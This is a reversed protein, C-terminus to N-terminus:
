LPALTSKAIKERCTAPALEIKPDILKRLVIKRARELDSWWSPTSGRKKHATRIVAKRSTVLRGTSAPAIVISKVSRFRLVAKKSGEPPPLGM